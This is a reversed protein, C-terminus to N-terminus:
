LIVFDFEFLEEAVHCSLTLMEFYHYCSGDVHLQSSLLYFFSLQYLLLRILLKEWYDGDLVNVLLSNLGERRQLRHNHEGGLDIDVKVRRLEVRLLLEVVLIDVEYNCVGDVLVSIFLVFFFLLALLLAFLFPVCLNTGHSCAIQLLFHALM